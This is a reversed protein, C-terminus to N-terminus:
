LGITSNISIIFLSTGVTSKILLKAFFFVLAPIILFGGGAGVLGTIVGVLSGILLMMMYNSDPKPNANNTKCDECPRIMSVSAAVMVVAFLVM